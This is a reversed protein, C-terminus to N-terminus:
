VHARGIEEGLMKDAIQKGNAPKLADDEVKLTVPVGGLKGGDEKIALNFADRIDEGIYGAPTSLTTILGITVPKADQAMAPIAVLMTGAALAGMLSRRTLKQVRNLTMNM